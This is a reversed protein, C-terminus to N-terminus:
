HQSQTQKKGLYKEPDQDFMTKHTQNMFYYKKGQYESSPANNEDVMMGCVSCTAM